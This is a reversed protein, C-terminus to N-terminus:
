PKVHIKPPTQADSPIAILAYENLKELFEELDQRLREEPVDFEALLSDFASQISNAATLTTWMRAGVPNLGLYVTTKMNLLVAEDGVAQFVVDPASTVRTSFSHPM